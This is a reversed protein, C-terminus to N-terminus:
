KSAGNEIKERRQGRVGQIRSANKQDPVVSVKNVGVSEGGAGGIVFAALVVLVAAAAAAITIRAVAVMVRRGDGLSDEGAVKEKGPAGAFEELAVALGHEVRQARQDLICSVSFVVATHMVGVEEESVLVRQYTTLPAASFLTVAIRYRPIPTTM